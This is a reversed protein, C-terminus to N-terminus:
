VFSIEVVREEEMRVSGFQSYTSIQTAFNLDPREAANMEILQQEAMKVAGITMMIARKDSGNNPVRQQRIIPVGRFTPLNRGALAKVDQFDFSTFQNTTDQLLDEVGGAGAILVIGEREMDVENAELIKLGENFKAVTLGTAGAAIKQGAPLVVGVGDGGKGIAATGLLANIIDDDIKRGHAAALKTMYESTPDILMRLKDFDDLYTSAEYRKVTAMRRSHDADQLNAPQLRSTIENAEFSGLRDFFHKEGNARERLVLPLLKADKQELLMWLTDSFQNIFNQDINAAM